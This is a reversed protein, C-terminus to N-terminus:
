ALPASVARAFRDLLQAFREVDEAPWGALVAGLRGQQAEVIDAFRELAAPTPSIWVARADQEDREAEVLGRERLEKLHRSVASKDMGLQAVIANAQVRRMRVVERFVAWAAPQVDTGLAAAATRVSRRVGIAIGDFSEGISRISEETAM